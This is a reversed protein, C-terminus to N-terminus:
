IRLNVATHRQPAPSVLVFQAMEQSAIKAFVLSRDMMILVSQTKTVHIEMSPVSMSTQFFVSTM